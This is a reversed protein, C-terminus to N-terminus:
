KKEKEAKGAEPKADVDKAEKGEVIPEVAETTTTVQELAEVISVVNTEPDDQLEVGAPLVIEGAHVSDGVVLGSIDVVLKDPIQGPLCEVELEYISVNIRGEGLKVPVPTGELKVPVQLRIKHDKSVGLLDVHLVKEKIPEVQLEKVLALKGELDKVSSKLEFLQTSSATMVFRKVFAENLCIHTAEKGESYIVGPIQGVKRMKACNTGGIKERAEVSLEIPRV